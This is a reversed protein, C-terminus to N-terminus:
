LPDSKVEYIKLDHMYPPTKFLKTNGIYPIEKIQIEININGQKLPILALKINNCTFIM